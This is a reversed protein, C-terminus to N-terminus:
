LRPAWTCILLVHVLKRWMDGVVKMRNPQLTWFTGHKFPHKPVRSEGAAWFFVEIVTENSATIEFSTKMGLCFWLSGALVRLAFVSLVFHNKSCVMRELVEQYYVNSSFCINKWLNQIQAILTAIFKPNGRMLFLFAHHTWHIIERSDFSDLEDQNGVKIRFMEQLFQFIHLYSCDSSIFIHLTYGSFISM